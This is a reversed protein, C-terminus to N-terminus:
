NIIHYIILIHQSQYLDDPRGKRYTKNKIDVVYNNFCMLYPNADLKNLFDKDYFLEKAEKMINKCTTTKCLICIDGLKSAKLKLPDANQENNELRTVTEILDQAKKIYVRANKSILLRM